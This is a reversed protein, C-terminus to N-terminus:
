RHERRDTEEPPGTRSKEQAEQFARQLYQPLPPNEAESHEQSDSLKQLDRVCSACYLCGSVHAQVAPYEKPYGPEMMGDAYAAVQNEDASLVFHDQPYRECLDAYLRLLGIDRNSPNTM